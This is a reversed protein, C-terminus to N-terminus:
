RDDGEDRNFTEPIPAPIAGDIPLLDDLQRLPDAPLDFPLGVGDLLARWRRRVDRYPRHAARLAAHAQAVAEAAARADVTLEGALRDFQHHFFRQVDARREEVARRAGAVQAELAEDVAELTTGGEGSPVARFTVTAQVRDVEARLRAEEAADPEREGAGIAEHYERLPGMAADLARGARRQRATLNELRERAHREALRLEELEEWATKTAATM